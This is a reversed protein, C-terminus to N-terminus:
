VLAPYWVVLFLRQVRSGMPNNLSALGLSNVQRARGQREELLKLPAGARAEEKSRSRGLWFPRFYCKKKQRGRAKGRQTPM